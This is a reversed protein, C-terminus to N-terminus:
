ECDEIENVTLHMAGSTWPAESDGPFQGVNMVTTIEGEAGVKPECIESNNSVIMSDSDSDHPPLNLIAMEGYMTRAAENYAMAADFATPFTGLWLRKGGNPARIEAVWKGLDETSVTRIKLGEKGM